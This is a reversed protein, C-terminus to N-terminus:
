RGNCQMKTFRRGSLTLLSMSPLGPAPAVTHLGLAAKWHKWRSKRSRRSISIRVEWRENGSIWSRGKKWNYFTLDGIQFM